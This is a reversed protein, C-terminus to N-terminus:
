QMGQASILSVHRRTLKKKIESFIHKLMKFYVARNVAKYVM